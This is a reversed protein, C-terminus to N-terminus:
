LPWLEFSVWGGRKIPQGFVDRAATFKAGTRFWGCAAANGADLAGVLVRVTDPRFHTNADTFVLVDADCAAALDNLV